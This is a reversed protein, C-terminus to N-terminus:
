EIKWRTLLKALNLFRLIKFRNRWQNGTNSSVNPVMKLNIRACSGDKKRSVELTKREHQITQLKVIIHRSMPKKFNVISHGWLSNLDQFEYAAGWKVPHVRNTMKSHIFSKLITLHMIKDSYFNCLYFWRLHFLPIPPKKKKKQM